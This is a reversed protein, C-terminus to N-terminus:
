NFQNKDEMALGKTTRTESATKKAAAKSTKTEKGTLSFSFLAIALVSLITIKTKM